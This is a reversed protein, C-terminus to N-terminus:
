IFTIGSLSFYVLWCVRLGVFCLYAGFCEFSFIFSLMHWPAWISHMNLNLNMKFAYVRLSLNVFIFQYINYEHKSLFNWEKKRKKQKEADDPCQLTQIPEYSYLTKNSFFFIFFNFLGIALRICCLNIQHPQKSQWQYMRMLEMGIIMIIISYFFFSFSTRVIVFLIHIVYFCFM